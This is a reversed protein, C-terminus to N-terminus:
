RQMSDVLHALPLHLALVILAMMVMSGVILVLGVVFTARSRRMLSWALLAGLLAALLPFGVYWRRMLFDVIGMLLVTLAPLEADFSEFVAKFKPAVIVLAALPALWMLCGIVVLAPGAAGAQAAPTVPSPPEPQPIGPNETM